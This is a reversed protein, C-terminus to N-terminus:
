LPTSFLNAGRPAPFFQRSFSTVHYMYHTTPDRNVLDMAPGNNMLESMVHWFPSIGLLGACVPDRDM